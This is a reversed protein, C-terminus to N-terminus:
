LCTSVDVDEVLTIQETPAAYLRKGSPLPNDLMITKWWTYKESEVVGGMLIKNKKRRPTSDVVVRAGRGIEKM